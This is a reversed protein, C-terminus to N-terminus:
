LGDFFYEEGYERIHSVADLFYDPEDLFQQEPICYRYMLFAALNLRSRSSLPPSTDIYEISTSAFGALNSRGLTASRKGALLASWGVVSSVTIVADIAQILWESRGQKWREPLLLLNPMQEAISEELTRSLQHGPHYTAVARWGSPLADLSALLLDEPTTGRGLGEFTLWDPPQMAFMAVPAGGAAAAFWNMMEATEPDNLNPETFRVEWDRQIAAELGIPLELWRIRQAARVLLSETQHGFPDLFFGTGMARPLPQMESFLTTIEPSLSSLYRNQTFSLIADPELEAVMSSVIEQLAQNEVADDKRRALDQGYRVRNMGFPSLVDIPNISFTSIPGVRNQLARCLWPSSAISFSLGTRDANARIIRAIWEIWPSLFLPDQRYTVPEVYFTLRALNQM